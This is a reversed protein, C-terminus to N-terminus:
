AAEATTYATRYHRKHALLAWAVRANHNALACAAVNVHRRALLRGLWSEAYGPKAKARLIVSRAGHIMLGRLYKDGRKSIGLLKPKGGSSYQRPVLGMWAALQRGNAFAKADGISAVLASATLAGIGPIEAVRRSADNHEHWRKIEAEVEEAQRRLQRSHELLRLLLQRFNVPLGNEADELVDPIRAEINRAGQPVVIGFEALLGRIQNTQAVRSKIFGQRARHLALLTQSEISKIPVFRMGPRNVAECIAEADAADTKNTKVYPKVFQPAMLRVTHGLAQFKRAWYHASSCAEMGVLCPPLNAFFVAVQARKLQKKVSARGEQDVGHVQFVSKALDLGVATINMTTAGKETSTSATCIWKPVDIGNLLRSRGDWRVHDSGGQLANRLSPQRLILNCGYMRVKTFGAILSRDRISNAPRPGMTKDLELSANGM